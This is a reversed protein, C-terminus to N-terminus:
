VHLAEIHAHAHLHPHDGVHPPDSRLLSCRTCCDPTANVLCRTRASLRGEIACPAYQRDCCVPTQVTEFFHLTGIAFALAQSIIQPLFPFPGPLTHTRYGGLDAIYSFLGPYACLTCSGRIQVFQQKHEAWM